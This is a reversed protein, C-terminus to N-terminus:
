EVAYLEPLGRWFGKYDMGCGFLYADGARLGVFDVPPREVPKAPQKVVLVATCLRAVGIDRLAASLAALTTGRDLVDDVVLVARGELAARPRVHWELAGGELAHGYSSVHVYDFEYPFRFHRCLGVAAFAGGQMVALVVPSADRLVAGIEEAMRALAQEVEEASAIRRARARM